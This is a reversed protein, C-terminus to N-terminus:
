GEFIVAKLYPIKQLDDEKMVDELDGEVRNIEMFLKEQIHPYKVLNAMIWQLATSTSDTGANLFESCLDIIEDENLNREEQPQQLDLM